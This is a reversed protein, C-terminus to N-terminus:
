PSAPAQADSGAGPGVATPMVAYLDVRGSRDTMGSALEVPFNKGSPIVFARVIAGSVVSGAVQADVLTFGLDLPPGMEITPVRIASGLAASPAVALGTLMKNGFRAGRPAEVVLDYLGPDVALLFSGDDDTVTARSRALSRFPRCEPGGDTVPPFAAALAAPDASPVARIVAGKLPRDGALRVIGQVTRLRVAEFGLGSRPGGGSPVPLGCRAFSAFGSERAPLVGVDYIGPPLDIAFAGSPDTAIQKSYRLNSSTPELKQEVSQFILTAPTLAGEPNGIVLGEIHQPPLLKPMSRTTIFQSDAVFSPVGDREPPPEIVLEVARKSLDIVGATFLTVDNCSTPPDRDNPKPSCVGFRPRFVTTIRRAGLELDRIYLQWGTLDEQSELLFSVPAQLPLPGVTTLVVGVSEPSRVVGVVPPFITDFPPLPELARLFRGPPLTVQFGLPPTGRPGAVADLVGQLVRSPQGLIVPLPMQAVSALTEISEFPTLPRFSTSVPLTLDVAPEFGVASAVREDVRMVEAAVHLIVPPVCFCAGPAACRSKPVICRAIESRTFPFTLGQAGGLSTTTPFSIVYVIGLPAVSTGCGGTDPDCLVCARIERDCLATPPCDANSVCVNTPLDAGTTTQPVETCGAGIAAGAGVASLGCAMSAFVSASVLRALRVIM